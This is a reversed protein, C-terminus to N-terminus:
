RRILFSPKLSLNDEFLDFEMSEHEGCVTDFSPGPLYENKDWLMFFAAESPDGESGVAAIQSLGVQPMLARGIRGLEFPDHYPDDCNDEDVIDMLASLAVLNLNMEAGVDTALERWTPPHPWFTLHSVRLERLVHANARCVAKFDSDELHGSTLDLMKLRPWTFNLLVSQSVLTYGSLDIYLHELLKAEHLIPAM